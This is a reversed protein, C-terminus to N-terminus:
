KDNKDQHIELETQLKKIRGIQNNSRLVLLLVALALAFLAYWEREIDVWFLKIETWMDNMTKRTNEGTKKTFEHLKPKVKEKIIKKEVQVKKEYELPVNEITFIDSFQAQLLTYLKHRLPISDIPSITVLFYADLKEIKTHLTPFHKQKDFFLKVTHLKQEAEFSSKGAPIIMKQNMTGASIYISMIIILLNKMRTAKERFLRM